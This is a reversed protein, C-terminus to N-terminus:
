TAHKIIVNYLLKEYQLIIKAWDYASVDIASNKKYWMSGSNILYQLKDALEDADDMKFFYKDEEIFQRHAPIDSLLPYCGAAITELVAMPCNEFHSATIYVSAKQLFALQEPSHNDIWGHFVVKDTLKLQEVLMQLEERYPGDGLIDIQWDKLDVLSIARLVTQMNKSKQMRGMLLIRKEKKNDPFHLNMYTDVDLGNPILPYKGNAFEKKMLDLLFASPAVVSESNRVISRWFPRLLVHMIKMYTKQNYGEVDSGHATIVYPINYKKKIWKGLEGTPIVFHVHCIDYHHTKFHKRLFSKAAILYTYQEWPMCSSKKSRWCKVRHIKVGGIEEYAPLDQFGMTVVTVEHGRECLKISIDRSVPAAGGGIPPFEYNLVLIKM